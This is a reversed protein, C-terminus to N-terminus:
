ERVEEVLPWFTKEMVHEGFRQSALKMAVKNQDSKECGVWWHAYLWLSCVRGMAEMFAIGVLREQKAELLTDRMLDYGHDLVPKELVCRALIAKAHQEQKEMDLIHWKQLIEQNNAAGDRHHKTVIRVKTDEPSTDPMLDYMPKEKHCNLGIDCSCRCIKPATRYDAGQSWYPLTGGDYKQITKYLAIDHWYVPETVPRANAIPGGECRSCTQYYIGSPTFVPILADIRPVVHLKVEENKKPSDRFSGRNSSKTRSNSTSM